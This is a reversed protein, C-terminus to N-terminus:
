REFDKKGPICFLMTSFVFVLLFFRIGMRAMQLLYLKSFKAKLTEQEKKM